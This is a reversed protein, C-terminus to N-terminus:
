GAQGLAIHQTVAELVTRGDDGRLLSRVVATNRGAHLVQASAALAGQGPSVFWASINSLGTGPPAVESAAIAAIGVLIGGQVHGVRNGVHVGTAIRYDADTIGHARGLWFRRLFREGHAPVALHEDCARVIDREVHNLTAENAPATTESSRSQWPLPGLAVGDPTALRVFEGSARCVPRDQAYLTAATLRQELATGVAHGLLCADAAVDGRSPVGTFQMQLHVTSLREGTRDEARAATGLAIDALVTLALLDINGDHDRLWPVDTLTLHSREPAVASWRVDLFYGPFHFGPARNAAIAALVRARIAARNEM